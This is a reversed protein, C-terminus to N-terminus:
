RQTPLVISFTSGEGPRSELRVEGGHAEVIQRVLTLGLGTGKVASATAAAGRVFKEFVKSQEERPIGIGQDRVSLVLHRDEVDGKVWITRSRPSYKVANDLLNWLARELAAADAAHVVAEDGPWALDVQYGRNQVEEQFEAVVRQVLDKAPVAQLIVEHSGADMRGFDLLNEVLRTLRQTGRRLAGYYQDRDEQSSQRGDALLDTFQRLSTLPTRFEHSVAAVFDSQLRATELERTMARASFYSGAVALLTVLGLGGLLLRRRGALQATGATPDADGVRLTWPLGTVAMTRVVDEARTETIESLVSRGEADDLAVHIGQRQLRAHLPGVLQRELFGPGGVLAVLRDPGGRWLVLVSRDHSWISRQGGRPEEEGHRDQQWQEWLTEVGVALSQPEPRLRALDELSAADDAVWRLTELAFHLYTARELQWRGNHLDADLREAETRLQDHRGLEALLDCRARLAVLDAPQGGLRVQRIAGLSTYTTLAAEPHGAKRQNRALRLLAGARTQAANSGSSDSSDALRQFEAIASEFDGARFELAEGAAFADTTPETPRPVAPYSLLRHSPYADVAGPQFVVVLADDGLTEAYTSASDLLRSASLTSLLTLQAEAATLTQRMEAAVLDAASDLRDRVRQAGVARDQQLLRWGLWGLGVTLVLTTGLFLVLLNRPPRLWNRMPM